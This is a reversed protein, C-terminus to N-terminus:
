ASDHTEAKDCLIDLAFPCSHAIRALDTEDVFLEFIGGIRVHILLEMM